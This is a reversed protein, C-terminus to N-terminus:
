AAVERVRRVFAEYLALGAEGSKEPHFQTAFVNGVAVAATFPRGYETVGVASPHDAPLAFSHVFYFHSGNPVAAAIPHEATWEVRNWGMHPVKVAGALREIRGPLIGLGADEGEDSGEFLIQLGLCVGLVPRGSAVVQHIAQELGGSRVGRMCRGFAGVGPLILADARVAVEPDPTVVPRGGVREVARAVSRLNGMGYDLVAIM